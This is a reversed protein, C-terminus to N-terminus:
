VFIPLQIQLPYLSNMKEFPSIRGNWPGVLSFVVVATQFQRRTYLLLQLCFKNLVNMDFQYYIIVNILHSLIKTVTVHPDDSNVNFVYMLPHKTPQRNNLM